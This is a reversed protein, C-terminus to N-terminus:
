MAKMSRVLANSRTLLCPRNWSSFFISQGGLQVAEDSGKMLVHLANHAKVPFGRLGECDPTPNFLSTDKRRCEKANKRM